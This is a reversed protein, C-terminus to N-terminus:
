TLLVLSYLVTIGDQSSNLRDVRYRVGEITFEDNKVPADVGVYIARRALLDFDSKPLIGADVFEQADIAPLRQGTYSKGNFTFTVPLEPEVAAVDAEFQQLMTM